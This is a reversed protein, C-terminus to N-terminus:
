ESSRGYKLAYWWRGLYESMAGSSTSLASAAPVWGLPHDRRGKAHFGTPAPITQFNVAEFSWIARPMHVAHTVVFARKINAANLIDRSYAANEYTNRSRTEVWRAQVQFDRALAQQMLEAESVAEGLPSGGSVLIPLRTVRHLYAAYRLREAASASVSEGGYEPAHSRGAGLVIIAGVDHQKAIKAPSVLPPITELQRILGNAVVPLGLVFLTSTALVILATGTRPWRWRLLLGVVLVLVIISPPTVLIGAVKALVFM